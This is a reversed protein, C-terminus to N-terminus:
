YQFTYLCLIRLHAKTYEKLNIFTKKKEGQLQKIEYTGTQNLKMNFHKLTQFM